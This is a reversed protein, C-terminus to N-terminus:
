LSGYKEIQYLKWCEKKVSYVSFFFKNSQFSDSSRTIKWFLFAECVNKWQFIIKTFTLNQLHSYFDYVDFKTLANM